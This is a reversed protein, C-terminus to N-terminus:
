AESTVIVARPFEYAVLVVQAELTPCGWAQADAWGDSTAGRQLAYRVAVALWCKPVLLTHVLWVFGIQLGGRWARVTGGFLRIM